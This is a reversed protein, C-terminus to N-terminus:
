YDMRLLRQLANVENLPVEFQPEPSDELLRPVELSQLSSESLFSVM